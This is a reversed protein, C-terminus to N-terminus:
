QDGGGGGAFGRGAEGARAAEIKANIALINVQRAISVIEDNANLVSSLADAMETMQGSLHKVWGAIDKSQEGSQRIKETSSEVTQLTIQASEMLAGMATRVQTNAKLVEQAQTSLATISSLQETSKQDVDSLFGAIDVIEYALRSGKEALHSLDVDSKRRLPTDPSLGDFTQNELM